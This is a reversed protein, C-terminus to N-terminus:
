SRASLVLLPVPHYILGLYFVNDVNNRIFDGKERKRVCQGIAM